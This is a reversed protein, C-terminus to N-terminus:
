SDVFMNRLYLTDDYDNYIEDFKPALKTFSNLVEPDFHGPSTRDDGETIISFVKDHDIACKYPRRSRLADYQDVLMVIRSELPINEGKLGVPYGSGDWREHHNLAITEAMRLVPHSSRALIRKGQTTHTKIVEFEQDSLPGKKLLIYDTVGIKGIDHLPSSQVIKRCFEKPMGMNEALMHCYIGMRAVHSSAEADRFEAIATLKEVIEAGLYEADKIAAELEKTKEGITEELYLKHNEKMKLFTNFQVAKHISHLVYQPAAPKILFDYAGKNIAEVAVELDAYGTMLIVPLRDWTQGIKELLETGSMEPMKIDSLVVDIETYEMEALAVYANRCATVSYGEAELLLSLSELIQPDDDVVLVSNGPKSKSM